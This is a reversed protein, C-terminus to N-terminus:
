NPHDASRTRHLRPRCAASALTRLWGPSIDNSPAGKREPVPPVNRDARAYLTAGAGGNLPISTSITAEQLGPTAQLAKTLQDAFRPEPRKM